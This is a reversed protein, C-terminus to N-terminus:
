GSALLRRVMDLKQFTGGPVALFTSKGWSKKKIFLFQHSQHVVLFDAEVAV